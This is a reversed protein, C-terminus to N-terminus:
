RRQGTGSPGSDGAPDPDGSRIEEELGVVYRVRADDLLVAQDAPEIGAIGAVQAVSLGAADRLLLVTRERAPLRRLARLVHDATTDADTPWPAVDVAWWGAWRDGAPLFYGGRDPPPAEGPGPDLHGTARLRHLVGGLVAALPSTGADGSVGTLAEVWADEVLAPPVSEAAVADAFFAV